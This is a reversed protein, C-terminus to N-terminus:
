QRMRPCLAPLNMVANLVIPFLELWDSLSPIDGRSMAANSPLACTFEDGREFCDYSLGLWDFLFPIYGRSMAANLLLACTFEDGREFFDYVLEL